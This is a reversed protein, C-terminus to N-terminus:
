PRSEGGWGGFPTMRFAAPRYNKPLYEDPINVANGDRVASLHPSAIEVGAAHFATQISRLLASRPIKRSEHTFANLEYSVYFDDLSTQLVFPPPEPEILPTSLAAQILLEEVKLWPVDYGITVTTHIILGEGEAMTTFNIIHNSMVLSNPISITVNKLTRVRTVHTTKAVVVGEADAIKVRDGVKFANMYTLMVGAVVNAVMQSGGLSFLVGFFLTLGQFAPSDSLPLYPFAVVLFLVWVFGRLIKFSVPSWEAEFGPIRIRGSEIGLAVASGLKLVYYTVFYLVLITVLNPLFRVMANTVNLFASTVYGFVTGAFPATEPLLAFFLQLVGLLVALYAVNRVVRGAGHAIGQIDKESLLEHDQWRISRLRRGKWSALRRDVWRLVLKVLAILVAFVLLFIVVAIVIRLPRYPILATLWERLAEVRTTLMNGEM